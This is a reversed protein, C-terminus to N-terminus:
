SKLIPKLIYFYLGNGMPRLLAPSSEAQLGIFLEETKMVRAPDALYRWNFFVEASAGKIKAPLLYTNDGLAQDASSVEVTKKNPHITVKVENTKQGFVGALKIANLFEERDLTAETTFKQPILPLYDPFNGEMLRSILEARETKFLVQNEDHFIRIMEDDKSMRLVEQGTKLPILLKFPEKHTTTFLNQALTKEALRFGDTAAFKLNDISFNLLITNLEPRLDSLQAAVTTQQIAEKLFVSKIELYDKTNKIKPTIPFDEPPLGQITANYNDTKITLASGKKEFNLRDSQINTILNSFIALPVTTKGDEIVKGPALYTIALDLNTTTLTIGESGVVVLVNKLIPLNLNEGTTREIAAIAEKINSRIAIFRM